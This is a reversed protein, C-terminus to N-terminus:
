SGSPKQPSAASATFQNRAGCVTRSSLLAGNTVHNGSPVM